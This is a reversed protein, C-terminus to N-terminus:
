KHKDKLVKSIKDIWYRQNDENHSIKLYKPLIFSLASSCYHLITTKLSALEIFNDLIKIYFYEDVGDLTNWDIVKYDEPLLHSFINTNKLYMFPAYQENFYQFSRLEQASIAKDSLLKESEYNQKKREEIINQYFNVWDDVSNRDILIQGSLYPEINPYMLSFVKDYCGLGYITNSTDYKNFIYGPDNFFLVDCDTFFVKDYNDLFLEQLNYWKSIFVDNLRPFDHEIKYRSSYQSKIVKIFEFEKISFKDLYLYSDIDFFCDVFVIIDYNKSINIYPQLSKLANYLMGYYILSEKRLIVLNFYICYKNNM